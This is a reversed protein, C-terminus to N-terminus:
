SHIFCWAAFISKPTHHAMGLSYMPMRWNPSILCVFASDWTTCSRCNCLLKSNHFRVSGTVVGKKLGMKKQDGEIDGKVTFFLESVNLQKGVALAQCSRPRAQPWHAASARGRWPRGALRPGLVKNALKKNLEEAISDNLKREFQWPPIRVTDVMEVLVFM